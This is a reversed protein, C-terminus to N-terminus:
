PGKGLGLWGILGSFCSSQILVDPPTILNALFSVSWAAAGGCSNHQMVEVEGHEAAARAEGQALGPASRGWSGM